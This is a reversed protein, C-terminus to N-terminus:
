GDGADARWSPHWWSKGTEAGLRVFPVGFVTQLRDPTMVAEAPGSAVLRGANLLWVDEAVAAALDFRHTAIVVPHGAEGCAKLVGITTRLHQVDLTSFPEDLVLMAGPELQAIARALMVRQRNGASLTRCAQDALPALELSAMVADVRAANRGVAFRGLEVMQRVSLDTRVAVDQGHYAIRRALNRGVLRDARADDLLVGGTTPRLVGVLCRLLTTKGAGNPGIVVTTRAGDLQVSVARLAHLRGFTVTLDDVVCRM